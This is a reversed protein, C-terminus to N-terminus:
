RSEEKTSGRSVDKRPLVRKKFEKDSIDHEWLDEEIEYMGFMPVEKSARSGSKQEESNTLIGWVFHAHKGKRADEFNTAM